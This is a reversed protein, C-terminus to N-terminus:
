ATQATPLLPESRMRATLMLRDFLVDKDTMLRRLRALDAKRQNPDSTDFIIRKNESAAPSVVELFIRRREEAYRDLVADDAEGRAVASLTEVLSFVDFLGSTLGYAGSPNTAHAADGALLVRGVRFRETTRQHMRYPAYEVVEIDTAGPVIVEFFASMREAIGEEPLGLSESYTCRWLDNKDLKIIIAGYKADIQFTSRAYGRKSFDYRVNAAIFREPWTFGEFELGLAKRVTSGAGDAGVVWDARLETAGDPGDLQLVVGNGDQSLDRLATAWRVEVHPFSALRRLVIEALQGQGLHLNFPFRTHGELPQLNYNIWEGSAFDLFSYDQKTFGLEIAEDLLGLKALGELAAWHHTIARPSAVVSSGREIVTVPVGAQALGLASLLGVPGAGAIAVKEVGVM